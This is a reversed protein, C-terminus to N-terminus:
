KKREGYIIRMVNWACAGLAITAYVGHCALIAYIGETQFQMRMAYYACKVAGPGVVFVSPLAWRLKGGRALVPGATALLLAIPVNGYPLRMFDDLAVALAGRSPNKAGYM